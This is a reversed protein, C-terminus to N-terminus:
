FYRLPKGNIFAPLRLWPRQICSSIELYCRTLFSILLDFTVDAGANALAEVIGANDREFDHNIDYIAADRPPHWSIAGALVTGESASAPASGHRLRDFLRKWAPRADLPLVQANPDAGKSLLSRVLVTDNRNVATILAHNLQDQRMQWWTLMILVAVLGTLLLLTLIAARQRRM